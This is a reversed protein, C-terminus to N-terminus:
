RESPFVITIWQFPTSRAGCVHVTVLDPHHSRLGSRSDLDGRAGARFWLDASNKNTRIALIAHYRYEPSHWDAAAPAKGADHYRVQANEPLSPRRQTNPKLSRTRYGNATPAPQSLLLSVAYSTM